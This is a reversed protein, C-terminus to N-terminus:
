DIGEINCETKISRYLIYSVIFFIFISIIIFFGLMIVDLKLIALVVGFFGIVISGFSVFFNITNIISTAVEKRLSILISFNGLNNILSDVQSRSHQYPKLIIIIYNLAWVIKRLYITEGSIDTYFPLIFWELPTNLLNKQFQLEQSLALYEPDDKQKRKFLDSFVFKTKIWLIKPIAQVVGESFINRIYFNRLFDFLNQSRVSEEFYDIRSMTQMIINNLAANNFYIFVDDKATNLDFQGKKNENLVLHCFVEYLRIYTHKHTKIYVCEYLDKFHTKLEDSLGNKRQEDPDAIIENYIKEVESSDTKLIAEFYGTEDLRCGDFYSGELIKEFLIVDNRQAQGEPTRNEWDNIFDKIFDKSFYVRISGNLMEIRYESKDILANKLIELPNVIPVISLTLGGGYAIIM